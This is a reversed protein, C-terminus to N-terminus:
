ELEDRVILEILPRDGELFDLKQIEEKDVWLLEQFVLNMVVGSYQKVRYFTLEVETGISYSHAHRFVESASQVEIGLEERLERRLAGLPGEGREVKGGPFEWKLPFSDTERRQCVLLRDDRYILAAVVEMPEGGNSM